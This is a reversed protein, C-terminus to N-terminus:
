VNDGASLKDAFFIAKFEQDDVDPFLECFKRMESQTFECTNGLKNYLTQPSMELGAAVEWFKKNNRKTVARFKHEDTM